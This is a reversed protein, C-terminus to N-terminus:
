VNSLCDLDDIVTYVQKIYEPPATYGVIKRVQESIIDGWRSIILISILIAGVPDFWRAPTNYAVAATIVAATNSLVDNLHDEALANLMDSKYQKSIKACYIWLFFKAVTGVGLILYLTRGVNLKPIHGHFGNYLDECSYQIVVTFLCM